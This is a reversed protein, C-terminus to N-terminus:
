VRVELGEPHDGLPYVQGGCNYACPDEGCCLCGCECVYDADKGCPCTPDNVESVLEAM